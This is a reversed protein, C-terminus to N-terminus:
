ASYWHRSVGLDIVLAGLAGVSSFALASGERM